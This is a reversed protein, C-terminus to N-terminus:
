LNVQDVLLHPLKNAVESNVPYHAHLDPLLHPAELRRAEILKQSYDTLAPINVVNPILNLLAVVIAHLNFRQANTLVTSNLSLSQIRYIVIVRNNNLNDLM